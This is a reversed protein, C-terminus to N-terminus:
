EKLLFPKELKKGYKQCWEIYENIADCFSQHLERVSKGQFTIPTHINAVRGLFLNQKEDFTFHGIYGKHEIM